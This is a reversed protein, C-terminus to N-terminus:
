ERVTPPDCAPDIGFGSGTVVGAADLSVQFWLCDNTPYRWSWTEGDGRVGRRDGPTGIWRLVDDRKLDRQSQLQFFEAEGLVQRAQQVRGAGDLDVMWTTRGFPGTAYELREGGPELAYRATPAGWTRAVESAPTGVPPVPTACAALWLVGAAAFSIPLCRM